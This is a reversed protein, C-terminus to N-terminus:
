PIPASASKELERTLLQCIEKLRRERQSKTLDALAKKPDCAQLRAFWEGEWIAHRVHIWFIRVVGAEFGDKLVPLEQKRIYPSVLFDQTVFLVAARSSRLAKQLEKEWDSGVEIKSDDWFEMWAREILQYTYAKFEELFKVDKHSYSVFARLQPPVPLPASVHHCNVIGNQEDLVYGIEIFPNPHRYVTTRTKPDLYVREPYQKVYKGLENVVAHVKPLISPDVLDLSELSSNSLRVEYVRDQSM